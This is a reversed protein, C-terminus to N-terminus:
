VVMKGQLQFGSNLVTSMNGSLVHQFVAEHDANAQLPRGRDRKETGLGQCGESPLEPMNM